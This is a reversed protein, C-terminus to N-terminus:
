HQGLTGTDGRIKRVEGGTKLCEEMDDVDMHSATFHLLDTIYERYRQYLANRYGFYNMVSLLVCLVAIFLVFQYVISKKLSKRKKEM